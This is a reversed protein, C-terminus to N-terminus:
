PTMEEDTRPEGAFIKMTRGDDQMHIEVGGLEHQRYYRVFARGTDDIVEIRTVTPIKLTSRVKGLDSM